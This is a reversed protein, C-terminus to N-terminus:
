IKPNKSAAAANTTATASSSDNPWM